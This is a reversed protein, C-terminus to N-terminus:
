TGRKDSLYEEFTNLNTTTFSTTLDLVNASSSSNRCSPTQPLSIVQPFTTLQQKVLWLKKFQVPSMRLKTHIRESNYYAIFAYIAEILRALTDFREPDGFEIKFRGFFSEQSGNRWPSAKPAMSVQINHMALQSLMVDSDYESGQDSHFWDPQRAQALATKLATLPLESTHRIMVHAGVVEKTFLDIITALYVFSGQYPIFTFDSAWVVSPAIPSLIRTIDAFNLAEKGLDDLKCPTRCRRAPKLNYLKMVRLVRKRNIKLADAIRRHGYSPHKLMVAEIAVRLEEDKAPRRHQYYLMSRSVGLRSALEVKSVKDSL